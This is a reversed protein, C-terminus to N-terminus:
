SVVAIAAGNRDLIPSGSMGRAFSQKIRLWGGERQAEYDRWQGNLTLARATGAAPPRRKNPRAPLDRRKGDILMSGGPTLKFETPQPWAAAIPLAPLPDILQDYAESEESYAQTDPTGLVAIDAIPDVFLCEACVKCGGNLPGLLNGYTREKT